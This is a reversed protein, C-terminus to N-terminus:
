RRARGDARRLLASLRIHAELDAQREAEWDVQPRLQHAWRRLEAAVGLREDASMQSRRLLWHEDKLAELAAWDRGMYGRVGLPDKRVLDM